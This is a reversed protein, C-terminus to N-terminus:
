KLLVRGNDEVVTAIGHEELFAIMDDQSFAHFISPLRKINKGIYDREIL